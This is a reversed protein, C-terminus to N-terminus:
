KVRIIADMPKRVSREGQRECKGFNYCVLDSRRRTFKSAVRAFAFAPRGSTVFEVKVLKSVRMRLRFRRIQIRAVFTGTIGQTEDVTIVDGGGASSLLIADSPSLPSLAPFHWFLHQLLVNNSTLMCAQRIWTITTDKLPQCANLLSLVLAHLAPNNISGNLIAWYVPPRGDVLPDQLVTSLDLGADRCIKDCKKLVIDCENPLGRALLSQISSKVAENAKAHIAATRFDEQARIQAAIAAAESEVAVHREDEYTAEAEDKRAHDGFWATANRTAKTLSVRFASRAKAAGLSPARSRTPSSPTTASPPPLPSSPPVVLSLFSTSAANASRYPPLIPPPPVRSSSSRPPAHAVTTDVWLGPPPPLPRARM